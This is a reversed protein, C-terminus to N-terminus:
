ICLFESSVARKVRKQPKSISIAIPDKVDDEMVKSRAQRKPRSLGQLTGSQNVNEAKSAKQGENTGNQSM